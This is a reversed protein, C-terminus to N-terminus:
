ELFTPIIKAIYWIILNFPVDQAPAQRVRQFSFFRLLFILGIFQSPFSLPTSVLTAIIGVLFIYLLPPYNEHILHSIVVIWFIFFEPVGVLFQFFLPQQLIFLQVYVYEYGGRLLCICSYFGIHSIVQHQQYCLLLGSRM